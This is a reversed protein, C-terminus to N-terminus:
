VLIGHEIRTLEDMLLSIGFNSGLLEQPKTKGLALNDTQLWKLFYDSAGFVEIGKAYLIEIQLIKESQPEDFIKDEKQYRSLTKGSIHLFNAWDQMTFPFKRSLSYFFNFSIGRKAKEMLDFFGINSFDQYGFAFAPESVIQKEHSKQDYKKM